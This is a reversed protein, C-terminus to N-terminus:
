RAALVRDFLLDFNPLQAEATFREAHVRAAEGLRRRFAGDEILLRMADVLGDLHGGPVLLGDVGDEIMEEHGSAATGIVPKGRSMAEHVVNGLPEPLVSPAVGFLAREWAAMVTAHSVDYEVTVGRPFRTPMDPARSGLIVLPPPATLREYAELLVGIGKIQRLAGVFLIFPEEPLRGLVSEDPRDGSEVRFDPIVTDVTAGDLLHRHLVSQEHRSVSQLGRVKARLLRRGGFVGAVAVAGKAAGYYDGSCALCKRLEPGDCVQGDSRVLSGVACVPGYDRGALVLPVRTGLLAVSCSYSLWGSSHVVDPQLRRVLKRLGWVLEPDPFPPPIRRYRNASLRSMRMTLGRLRHVEFGEEDLERLPTGPQWTTAVAVAYGRGALGRALLQAARTAGGILPPYYDSVLLVRPKTPRV